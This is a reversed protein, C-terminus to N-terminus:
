AGSYCSSNVSVGEAEYRNPLWSYLIMALHIFLVEVNYLAFM